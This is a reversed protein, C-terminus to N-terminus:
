LIKAGTQTYGRTGVSRHCAASEALRQRQEQQRSAGEDAAGPEAGGGGGGLLLFFRRRRVVGLGPSPALSLAAQAIDRPRWGCRGPHRVEAVGSFRIAALGAGLQEPAQEDKAEAGVVQQHVPVLLHTPSSPTHSPLYTSIPFSPSPPLYHQHPPLSTISSPAIYPSPLLPPQQRLMQESPM